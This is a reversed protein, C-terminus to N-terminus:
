IVKVYHGGFKSILIRSMFTPYNLTQVHELTVKDGAKLIRDPRDVWHMFMFSPMETAQWALHMLKSGKIIYYKGPIIKVDINGVEPCVGDVKWSEHDQWQGTNIMHWEFVEAEIDRRLKMSDRGNANYRTAREDCQDVFDQTIEITIM